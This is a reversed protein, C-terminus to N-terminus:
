FIAVIVFLEVVMENFEPLRLICEKYWAGVYVRM